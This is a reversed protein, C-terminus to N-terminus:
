QECTMYWGTNPGDVCWRPMFNKYSYHIYKGNSNNLYNGNVLDAEGNPDHLILGKDTYGVVVSWHGGGHPATVPGAHLWGVGVPRGADIEAKLDEVGGNVSFAPKLGLSKLAALQANTDTSDGFRARVKNYEDDTKVKFYGAALMACSSSYCERYGTGSTNDNQYFYEVELPNQSPKPANRYDEKFGDLIYPPTLAELKEWAAIQHPLGKYYKAADVLFTM